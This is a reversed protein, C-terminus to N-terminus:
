RSSATVYPAIRAKVRKKLKFLAHSVPGRVIQYKGLAEWNGYNKLYYPVPVSAGHRFRRVHVRKSEDLQLGHKVAYHMFEERYHSTRKKKHHDPDTHHLQCSALFNQYRIAYDGIYGSVYKKSARARESARIELQSRNGGGKIVERLFDKKWISPQFNLHFRYQKDYEYWEQSDDPIVVKRGRARLFQAYNRSPPSLQLRGLGEERKMLEFYKDLNLEQEQVTVHDDCMMVFTDTPIQDLLRSLNGEWGYDEDLALVNVNDGLGTPDQKDTAIYFEDFYSLRNLEKYFPPIVEYLHAPTQAIVLKKM